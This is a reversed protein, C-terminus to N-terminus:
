STAFNQISTALGPFAVLLKKDNTVLKVGADLAAWAFECDYTSCGSSSSLRLVEVHDVEIEPYILQAARRFHAEAGAQSLAGNRVQISLVSSLESRWLEPAAWEPDKQLVKEAAATFPGPILLYGLLNTDAVIM